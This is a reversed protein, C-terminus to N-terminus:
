GQKTKGFLWDTLWEEHFADTWCNHDNSDYEKYEIDAGVEKLAATMERTGSVPVTPDGNSHFTRIPINKIRDAMEPDAGGCVIAAAAFVEPRRMLLNWSGFGGMSIGSVYVRSKDISYDNIISDLLEDVCQMPKSVPVNKLSYSGEAWPTNVWQMGEPCQPAIIICKDKLAEDNIIREM